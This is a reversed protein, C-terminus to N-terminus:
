PLPEDDLNIAMSMIAEESSNVYLSQNIDRFAVDTIFPSQGDFGSEFTVV